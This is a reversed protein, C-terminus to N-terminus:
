HFATAAKIKTTSVRAKISIGEYSPKYRENVRITM